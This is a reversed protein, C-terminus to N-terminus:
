AARCENCFCAYNWWEPHEPMGRTIETARGELFGMRYSGDESGKFEINGIEDMIERLLAIPDDAEYVENEETSM